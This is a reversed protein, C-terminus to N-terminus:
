SSASMQGDNTCLDSPRARAVEDRDGACIRQVQQLEVPFGVILSQVRADVNAVFTDLRRKVQDVLDGLRVDIDDILTHAPAPFQDM